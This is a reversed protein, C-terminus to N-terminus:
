NFSLVSVIGNHDSGDITITYTKYTNFGKHLIHDIPVKIIDPEGQPFTPLFGFGNRSDTLKTKDLFNKIVPSFVTANLDGAVIVSNNEKNVPDIFSNIQNNRDNIHSYNKPPLPHTAFVVVKKGSLNIDTKISPLYNGSSYIIETNKLPYKSIIGIGFCDPRTVFHSYPYTNKINNFSKVWTDDLELTVIIDPNEKIFAKLASDKQNNYRYVNTMLLKIQKTNDKSAENKHFLPLVANLNLVIILLSLIINVYFLKSKYNFTIITIVLFIVAIVFIQFGLANFLEFLMFPINLFGILNFFALFIFLLNVVNTAKERIIELKTVAKM